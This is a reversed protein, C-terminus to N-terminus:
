VGGDVSQHIGTQENSVEKTSTTYPQYTGTITLNKNNSIYTQDQSVQADSPLTSTASMYAGTPNGNNGNSHVHNALFQNQAIVLKIVDLLVKNTSEGAMLHEINATLAEQIQLGTLAGQLYWNANTRAWEGPHITFNEDDIANLYGLIEIQTLGHQKITVMQGPLPLSIEGSPVYQSVTMSQGLSLASSLTIRAVKKTPDFIASSVIGIM